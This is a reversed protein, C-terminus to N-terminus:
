GSPTEEEFFGPVRPLSITILRPALRSFSNVEFRKRTVAVIAPIDRPAKSLIRRGGRSLRPAPYSQNKDDQSLPYHTM